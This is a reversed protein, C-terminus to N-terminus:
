CKEGQARKFYMVFQGTSKRGMIEVALAMHKNARDQSPRSNAVEIDLNNLKNFALAFKLQDQGLEGSFHYWDFRREDNGDGLRGWEPKPGLEEFDEELKNYTHQLETAIFDAITNEFERWMAEHPTLDMQKYRSM